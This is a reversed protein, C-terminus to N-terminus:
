LKEFEPLTLCPRARPATAGRVPCLGHQFVDSRAGREHKRGKSDRKRHPRISTKGGRSWQLLANVFRRKGLFTGGFPVGLAVAILTSSLPTLRCNKVGFWRCRCM